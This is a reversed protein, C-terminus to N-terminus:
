VYPTTPLTLHTYSVATNDTHFIFVMGDAGGDGEDFNLIAEQFFPQSLDITNSSFVSSEQWQAAATLQWCDGGLDFADGNFIFQTYLNNTFLIFLPLWFFRLFGKM